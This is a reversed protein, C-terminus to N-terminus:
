GEGERLVRALFRAIEAAGKKEVVQEAERNYNTNTNVDYVFLEGGEGPVFEFAAIEVGSDALVAEFLPINPDDDFDDVISFKNQSAAESSEEGGDVQCPDAPCLSFGDSADVRVTYLFKGGIFEARYVGGGPPDIYQQLLWVGDRPDEYEDSRLYEELEGDQTILKVQHGSGGRNPKLIYPSEMRAGAELIKEVGVAAITKPVRVGHRQLLSYQAVKDVELRIANVGNVVRRGYSELWLLISRTLEPSYYHGRIHSSASMRNYFVGEPPEEFLPAAGSDLYWDEVPVSLKALEEQIPQSWEQNEHIIFVKSM